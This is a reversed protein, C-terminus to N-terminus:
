KDARKVWIFAHQLRTATHEEHKIGKERMENLFIHMLEHVVVEEIEKDNLKRLQKLNFTVASEEYQWKTDCIAAADMDSEWSYVFKTTVLGYNLGLWKCWWEMHKKICVKLQKKDM